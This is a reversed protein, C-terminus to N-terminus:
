AASIKEAQDTLLVAQNKIVEFFGTGTQFFVENGSEERVKLKGPACSSILAAHNALVGFYGKEGPIVLSSVKGAYPKGSLTVIEFNFTSM